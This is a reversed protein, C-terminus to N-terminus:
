EEFPSSLAKNNIFEKDTLMKLFVIIAEKEEDTLGLSTDAPAPYNSAAIIQKDLTETHKIHDNYHDLVEELTSFRGDHMYPATLEINRLSTIKFMGNEKSDGTVGGRGLDTFSEDLGNNSFPDSFFLEGSHCDGCNGGRINYVPDPHTKFLREGLLEQETAQVLGLKFQDYRSNSSILTREFQALAKGVLESTIEQGPFAEEFKSPYLESSKLREVLEELSLNMEIPNEIPGLAQEELSSARGDWFFHKHWALNSISMSQRTSKTGNVGRSFVATDSFAHKQQHCSACSISQDKSLLPDYFLHRGLDVGEVTTPNDEPIDMAGFRGTNITVPTTDGAQPDEPKCSCFFFLCTIFYFTNKM